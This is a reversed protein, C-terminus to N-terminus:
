HLTPEKDEIEDTEDILPKIVGKIHDIYKFYIDDYKKAEMMTEMEATELNCREVVKLMEDETLECSLHKTFLSAIVCKMHAINSYDKDPKKDSKMEENLDDLIKNIMSIEPILYHMSKEDTDAKDSKNEKEAAIINKILSVQDLSYEGYGNEKFINELRQVETECTKLCKLKVNPNIPKFTHANLLTERLSSEARSICMLVQDKNEEKVSRSISDFRSKILYLIETESLKENEKKKTKVEKDFKTKELKNEFM